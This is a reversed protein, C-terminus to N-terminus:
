TFAKIIEKRILGKYSIMNKLFYMVFNEILIGAGELKKSIFYDSYLSMVAIQKPKFIRTKLELNESGDLLNNLIQQLTISKDMSFSKLPNEINEVLSENKKDNM